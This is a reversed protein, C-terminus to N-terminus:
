EVRRLTFLGCEKSVCFAAPYTKERHDRNQCIVLRNSEQKYIGYNVISPVHLGVYRLYQCKGNGEDKWFGGLGIGDILTVELTVLEGDLRIFQYTGAWGGELYLSQGTAMSVQGPGDGVAMGAVLAMVLASM